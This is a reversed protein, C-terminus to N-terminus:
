SSPEADARFDGSESSNPHKFCHILVALGAQPSVMLTSGNKGCAVNAEETNVCRAQKSSNNADCTKSKHM